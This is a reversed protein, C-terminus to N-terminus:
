RLLIKEIDEARDRYREDAVVMLYWDPIIKEKIARAIPTLQDLSRTGDDCIVPIRVKDIRPESLVLERRPLDIIVHGEKIGLLDEMEREKERRKAPNELYRLMEIKETDIAQVQYIQKFLRRYKM